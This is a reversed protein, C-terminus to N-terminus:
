FYIPNFRLNGRSIEVTPFPIKLYNLQKLIKALTKNKCPIKAFDVDASILFQRYSHFEYNSGSYNTSYYEEDGVLKENVGYGVSFCLWKPFSSEPIITGPSFSLWYNQGNYDKLLQEMFGDGFVEPRYKAFGSPFFSFKPLIRQENWIMEQTGFLAAGALNAGVDSWSFGWDSSFGDMMELTTQFAFGTGTGIWMATRPNVGSWKYMDSVLRATQYNTYTHGAKDMYLWNRSDDFFHFQTQDSQKYWVHYLAATSTIYAGGLSISVAAVCKRNLTDIQGNSVNSSFLFINLLFLVPFRKLM